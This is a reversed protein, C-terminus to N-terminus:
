FFQMYRGNLSLFASGASVAHARRYSEAKFGRRIQRDVISIYQRNVAIDHM